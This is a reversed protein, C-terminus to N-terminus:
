PGNYVDTNWYMVFIHTENIDYGWFDTNISM